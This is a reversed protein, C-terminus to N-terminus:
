AGILWQRKLYINTTVVYLQEIEFGPGTLHSHDFSSALNRVKQGRCHLDSTPSIDSHIKHADFRQYVKPPTDRGDTLSSDTDLFSVFLYLSPGSPM